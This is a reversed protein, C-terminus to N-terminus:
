AAGGAALADYAVQRAFCAPAREPRGAITRRCWQGAPAHCRPCAISRVAEAYTM